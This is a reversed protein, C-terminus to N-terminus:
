HTIYDRLAARESDLESIHSKVLDGISVISHLEGSSDVVPIHRVRNETMLTLIESVTQEVTCTLVGVTMLDRVHLSSLENMKGPMARVVDRESVIGEIKKGDPSVVLAGIHHTELLSVLDYISASPSITAVKKGSVISAIKM